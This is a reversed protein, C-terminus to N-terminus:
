GTALPTLLGKVEVAEAAGIREYITLSETWCARARGPQGVQELARGLVVLIQARHWDGGIGQLRALAQDAGAAADAPRGTRLHAEAMRLLTMGHWLHMRNARFVQLAEELRVLAEDARGAGTLAIGLAYMGNAMRLSSGLQRHIEASQEALRIAEDMRGTHVYVRSLNSLASAEGPVNGDERFAELATQLYEGAEERRGLVFCAIGRNNAAVGCVYIDDCARGLLMARQAHADAQEFRGSFSHALLLETHARGETRADGTHQATELALTTVQFFQDSYTGSEALDNTALLLNVARGLAGDRTHQRAAALLCDAETFLWNQGATSDAFTLGPRGFPGVHHPLRDGPRSLAYAGAATALYFDLLRSLAEACETPPQEDREACGRAYLRVLDHYRYRGPAASEILSTDVLTELLDEAAEPDLDLVAAAAHVSIDPGDALSLLRFARAQEPLLQGYGLEFTAKVALDGVQLEDLRRHEDDLKRALTSVTWTPRSALRSAAIRIALPLYGCRGVVDMAADREPAVRDEGVIRIFLDLAETPNMVDLDVHHAGVLDMMKGRSTVLAASGETGPLLPRVQAADRANDLLTLVRRGALTSRFLASREAVGEPIASAQTGLARLFAALVAGPEAPSGSGQLDVYLQGDPFHDRAAHAVHVALTTKGVGGIGSVSSVAMVSGEATALEKSLQEVYEQRGTFDAVTAPLQAPTLIRPAAVDAEAPAALSEDAQLIRRQLETLEPRPDVGLEGALHRRTDAYVALAESQRGSRYLALMLLERLRERLPHTATLATLEAVVDAHGGAKLDLQVRHELLTLRLEALRVRQTEAYPGPIGALPEGDWHALAKAYLARGRAIDGEAAAREAQTALADVRETDLSGAARPVSYGGAESRLADTGLAKRMRFAYTRITATAKEPPEEGWLADILEQATATRGSRLLLAALMARQQPSGAALQEGGREARVPGLVSFTLEGDHTAAEGRHGEGNTGGRHGTM